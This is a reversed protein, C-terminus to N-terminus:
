NICAREGWAARAECPWASQRRTDGPCDCVCRPHSNRGQVRSGMASSAGRSQLTRPVDCLPRPSCYCCTGAGLPPSIVRDSQACALASRPDRAPPHWCVVLHPSAPPFLPPSPVAHRQDPGRTAPPRDSLRGYRRRPNERCYARTPAPSQHGAAHV